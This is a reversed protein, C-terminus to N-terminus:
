VNITWSFTCMYDHFYMKELQYFIDVDTRVLTAM